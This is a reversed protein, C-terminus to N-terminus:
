RLIWERPGKDAKDTQVETEPSYPPDENIWEIEAGESMEWHWLYASDKSRENRLDLPGLAAIGDDGVSEINEILWGAATNLFGHSLNWIVAQDVATPKEVIVLEEDRVWLGDGLDQNVFAIVKLLRDPFSVEQGTDEAIAEDKYFAILMLELPFM